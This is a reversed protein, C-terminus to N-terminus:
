GPPPANPDAPPAGPDVPPEAAPPPAPLPPSAAALGLQQRLAALSLRVGGTPAILGADFRDGPATKRWQYVYVRTIRASTRAL